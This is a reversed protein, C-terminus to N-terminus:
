GSVYQMMVVVCLDSGPYTSGVQVINLSTLSGKTINVNDPVTIASINNGAVITPRNSQNTFVSVGNVCLDAIVSAGVSPTGLAAQVGTIMYNAPTPIKINGAAVELPGPVVLPLPQTAPPPAAGGAMVM